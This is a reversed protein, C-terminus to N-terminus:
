SRHQQIKLTYGIQNTLENILEQVDDDETNTRDTKTMVLDYDAGGHQGIHEYSSCLGRGSDIRPFLAIVSNPEDKWRRFIVIDGM